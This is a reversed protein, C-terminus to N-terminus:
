QRSPLGPGLLAVLAAHDPREAVRIELFELGDLARATADSICCSILRRCAASLHAERVGKALLRASHPSFFLAADLIESRLAKSAPEPLNSAEITEYVV